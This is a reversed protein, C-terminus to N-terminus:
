VRENLAEWKEFATRLQKVALQMRKLIRSIPEDLVESIEKFSLGSEMRLMYTEKLKFPLNKIQENFFSKTEKLQLLQDPSDWRSEVHEEIEALLPRKKKYFDRTSNLAIRFTWAKLQGQERYQGLSQNIKVFTEQFIDDADHRNYTMKLLYAYVANAYADYIENFELQKHNNKLRNM